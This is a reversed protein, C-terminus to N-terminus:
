GPVVNVLKPARVIVKRVPRGELARAVGPTALALERLEDEGIGPPVEVRDRVKGAV